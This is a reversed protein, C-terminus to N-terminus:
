CKPDQHKRYEPALGLQSLERQPRQSLADGGHSLSWVPTTHFAVMSLVSAAIFYSGEQYLKLIGLLQLKSVSATFNYQFKVSCQTSSFYNIPELMSLGPLLDRGWRPGQSQHWSQQQRATREKCCCLLFKAPSAWQILHSSKHPEAADSYEVLSSITFWLFQKM